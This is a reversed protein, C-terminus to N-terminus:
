KAFDSLAFRNIGDKLLKENFNMLLGLPSKTLRMYTLIQAKHIPLIRDTAKIEVVVQDEVWLDIRYANEIKKGNYEVPLVQQKKCSVGMGHLEIALCEEYVNELLGPGFHRHVKMGAEIIKRTLDSGMDPFNSIGAENTM